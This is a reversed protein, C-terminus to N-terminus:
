NPHRSPIPRDTASPEPPASPLPFNRLAETAAEIARLAQTAAESEDTSATLWTSALRRLRPIAARLSLTPHQEALQQLAMAAHQRHATEEDSLAEIALPV